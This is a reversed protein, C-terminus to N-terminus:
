RRRERPRPALVGKTFAEATLAARNAARWRRMLRSLRWGVAQRSYHTVEAIEENSRGEAVLALMEVDVPELDEEGAAAVPTPVLPLAARARVYAEVWTSGLEQAVAGARVMTRAAAVPDTLRREAVRCYVRVAPLGARLAIALPVDADRCGAASTRVLDLCADPLPRGDEVARLADDLMLPVLTRYQECLWSRYPEPVHEHRLGALAGAIEEREEVGSVRM